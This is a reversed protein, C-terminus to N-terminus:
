ALLQTVQDETPLDCLSAKLQHINPLSIQIALTSYMAYTVHLWRVCDGICLLPLRNALTFCKMSVM